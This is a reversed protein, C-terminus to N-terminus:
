LTASAIAAYEVIVNQGLLVSGTGGRETGHHLDRRKKERRWFMKM